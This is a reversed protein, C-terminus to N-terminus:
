RLASCTAEMAQILLNNEGPTRAAVRIHRLLGFSTCDRVKIAWERLLRMRLAAADGVEALFYHTQSPLTQIGARAFAAQLRAREDRLRPLTAALHSEAADGLAAVAAAQAPTSAAWPVRVRELATIVPEPGITFAARLGALAHDKTISRLHLVAPHGPLAPTGLPEPTFADYAQDLVLLAGAASCGDAVHEVEERSLAQGTPNNPACLFVLRPRHTAVASAISTADLAYEPPAAPHHVVRAGCLSAARTYEGFTPEPVLVTSEPDIFAFCVAHILEAAGAGFAITEPPVGWRQAAVRRPALSAPDPYQELATSLVARRVEPAPGWANLSVSFDIRVPYQEDAAGAPGGHVSRPAELVGPRPEIM